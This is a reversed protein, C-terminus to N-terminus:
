ICCAWSGSLAPVAPAALSVLSKVPAPFASNFLPYSPEPSPPAPLSILLVSFVQSGRSQVPFMGRTQFTLLPKQEGEAKQPYRWTGVVVNYRGAPQPPRATGKPHLPSPVRSPGPSPHETLLGHRCHPTLSSQVPLQLVPGGM